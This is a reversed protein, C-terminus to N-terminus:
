SRGEEFEGLSVRWKDISGDHGIEMVVYDGYGGGEPCMIDPVYGDIEVVQNMASDLLAYRGADCVKYHISAATGEPWGIIKGAELDILPAWDDGARCPILTGDEDDVGNVSADEWYRVGCRAQLYKVEVDQTIKRQITAM